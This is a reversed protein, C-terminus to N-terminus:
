VCKRKEGVNVNERASLYNSLRQQLKDYREQMAKNLAENRSVKVTSRLKSVFSSSTSDQAAENEQVVEM